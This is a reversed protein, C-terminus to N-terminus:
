ESEFESQDFGLTKSNERVTRQVTEDFGEDNEAEIEVKLKVSTGHKKTFHQVVEQMVDTFQLGAKTADLDITGFFRVPNKKGPKTTEEGDGGDDQSGGGQDNKKSKNAAHVRFRSFYKQTCEAAATDAVATSRRRQKSATTPTSPGSPDERMRKKPMRKKKM